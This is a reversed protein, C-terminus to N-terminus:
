EEMDKEVNIAKLIDIQTYKSLIDIRDMKLDTYHEVAYNAVEIRQTTTLKKLTNEVDVVPMLKIIRNLMNNDLCILQEEEPTGSEAPQQLGLEIRFNEDDIWLNGETFLREVGPKYISNELIERDVMIRTGKKPWTRSYHYEPLSLIITGRTMSIVPVYKDNM